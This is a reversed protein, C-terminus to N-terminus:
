SSARVLTVEATGKAPNARRFYPLEEEEEEEKEEEVARSLWWWGCPLLESARGRAASSYCTVREGDEEEYQVSLFNRLGGGDEGDRRLRLQGSRVEGSM